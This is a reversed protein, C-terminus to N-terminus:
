INTNSILTMEKKAHGMPKLLPQQTNIIYLLTRNYKAESNIHKM